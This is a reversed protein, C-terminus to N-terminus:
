KRIRYLENLIFSFDARVSELKEMAEDVLGELTKIEEKLENIDDM